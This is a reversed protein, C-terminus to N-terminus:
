YSYKENIDGGFPLLFARGYVYINHAISNVEFSLIDGEIINSFISGEKIMRITPKKINTSKKSFIFGNRNELSYKNIKDLDDRKPFVMSLNMYLNGKVNITEESIEVKEIVGAGVSRKGGISIFELLKIDSNSLINEKDDIYFYLYPEISIENSRKHCFVTYGDYYTNLSEKTYRNIVNRQIFESKFPSYTDLIDRVEKSVENDEFYYKNAIITGQDFRYDIYDKDSVLNNSLNMYAHQSVWSINKFRKRNKLNREEEEASVGEKRILIYPKPLFEIVKEEQNKTIKIGLFASSLLVKENIITIKDNFEEEKYVYSLANILFSYLKDSPIYDFLEEGIHIKANEKFGLKVKKM